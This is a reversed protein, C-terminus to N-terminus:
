LREKKSLSELRTMNARGQPKKQERVTQSRVSLVGRRTLVAGTAANKICPELTKIEALFSCTSDLCFTETRGVLEKLLSAECELVEFTLTAGIRFIAPCTLFINACTAVTGNKHISLLSVATKEHFRYKIGGASFM